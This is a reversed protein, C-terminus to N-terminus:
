PKDEEVVHNTGCNIDRCPKVEPKSEESCESAISKLARIEEAIGSCPCDECCHGDSDAIKAAEELAENRAIAIGENNSMNLVAYNVREDAFATLLCALEAVTFKYGEGGKYSLRGEVFDDAVEEATKM